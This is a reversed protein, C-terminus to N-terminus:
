PTDRRMEWTSDIQGRIALVTAIDPTDLLLEKELVRSTYTWGEPEVFDGLFEADDFDPIITNVPDVEYAFLVFVQGEPNTLEHVRRGVSYRLLTDRMVQAQVVLGASSAEIIIGDLNKAILKYENGPLEEVFDVADPVGDFSPTSRLEGSSFVAVQTPGKTWGSPTSIAQHQEFTCEPCEYALSAFRNEGSSKM